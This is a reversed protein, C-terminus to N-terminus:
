SPYTQAVAPLAFLSAGAFLWTAFWRLVWHLLGPTRAGNGGWCRGGRRSGVRWRSAFPLIVRVPKSPYTQAVAPLAFLSAGAFLWTAFWRLVWHLLGPTRAGDGGWCRGGRRSGVRGGPAFPVIVRVPKSPYTQAVAPLAFLSAGAFLWTAFWRLVWHLLGPTRAGNGGWCRGGRRSGVRGGPAFPVIVRVPKSPYT